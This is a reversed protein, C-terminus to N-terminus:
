KKHDIFQQESGVLADAMASIAASETETGIDEWYIIKMQTESIEYNKLQAKQKEFEAQEKEYAKQLELEKMKEVFPHGCSTLADPRMGDTLIVIVKEAM